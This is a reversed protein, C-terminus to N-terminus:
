RAPATAFERELWEDLMRREYRLPDSSPYNSISDLYRMDSLRLEGERITRESQDKLVFHVRMSPWAVGRLVRLREQYRGVPELEGALNVDLIELLLRQEVGIRKGAQELLHLTLLKQVRERDDASEGADAFRAPEIFRVEVQRAGEDKPSAAIAGGALALGLCALLAASAQRWQGGRFGISLTGM